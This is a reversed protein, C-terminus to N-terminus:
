NYDTLDIKIKKTVSGNYIFFFNDNIKTSKMKLMCVFWIPFILVYFLLIFSYFFNNLYVKYIFILKNYQEITNKNICNTDYFEFSPKCDM